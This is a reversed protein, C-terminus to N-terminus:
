ICLTTKTSDLFVFCFHSSSLPHPFSTGRPSTKAMTTCKSCCRKELKREIWRIRSSFFILPFTQLSHYQNGQVPQLRNPDENGYRGVAGKGERKVVQIPMARGQLTKGLGLGKKFGM